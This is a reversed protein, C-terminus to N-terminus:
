KLVVESLICIVPSEFIGKISEWCEHIHLPPRKTELFTMYTPRLPTTIM